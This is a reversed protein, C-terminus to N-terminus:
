IVEVTPLPVIFHGGKDLYSQHKKIIMGSFRWALVLVYDPKEAYMAQPSLVPIHYGPSFLNQRSPNDDVLFKLSSRLNFHYILVTVTASAGYGAVTKGQMNLRGLQDLLEKKVSDLKAGFSKFIAPRHLGLSTELATLKTVSPAM